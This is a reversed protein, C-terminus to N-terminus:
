LFCDLILIILHQWWHCLPLKSSITNDNIYFSTMFVRHPMDVRHAHISADWDNLLTRRPETYIFDRCIVRCIVLGLISGSGTVRSWPSFWLYLFKLTDKCPLTHHYAKTNLSSHCSSTISSCCSISSCSGVFFLLIWCHKGARSRCFPNDKNSTKDTCSTHSSLISSAVSGTIINQPRLLLNGCLPINWM